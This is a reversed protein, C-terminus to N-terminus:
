LRLVKWGAKAHRVFEGWSCTKLLRRLAYGPRLYFDRYARDLLDLLEQRTFNEEWYPPQFDAKPNAAFDRWPDGAIIGQQMGLFYLPTGPFPTMITIHVYDPALERALKMTQAIEVRTETPSGIIFYALTEIGAERSLRFAERAQDITIDKRLAKLVHDTGAEVGYHIRECGARRIKKLMEKDVNDVRTRVDWGIDLKRRLIEDCIDLARKRRVTFTDDYILFERIGLNVCEEMEDVVNKASRARFRKGLHPRDCFICRYPCGRSTFMTTIPERKALLSSYKWYPTLHRAPFPIEDLDERFGRVGTNIVKGNREFALGHIEELKGKHGLNEILHHFPIEGEGLVLYDVHPLGLTEAPYLHAHPGGLVVPIKEDIEKVLRATELVDILTFTMATIGVVDPGCAAIREKLAPWSLAEVQSDIVAVEHSSFKELHAALYLLGLPPNYGREEEIIPPNNGILENVSPPNILLVKM